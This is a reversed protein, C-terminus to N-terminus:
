WRPDVRLQGLEGPERRPHTTPRSRASQARLRCAQRAPLVGPMRTPEPWLGSKYSRNGIGPRFRLCPPEQVPSTQATGLLHIDTATVRRVRRLLKGPRGGGGTAGRTERYRDVHGRQRRTVTTVAGGGSTVTMTTTTPTPARRCLCDSRSIGSVRARSRLTLAVSADMSIRTLGHEYLLVVGDVALEMATKTGKVLSTFGKAPRENRRRKRLGNATLAPLLRVCLYSNGLDVNKQQSLVSTTAFCSVRDLSHPQFGRQVHV